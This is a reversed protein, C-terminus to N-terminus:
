REVPWRGLRCKGWWPLGPKDNDFLACDDLRCKEFKNVPCSRRRFTKRRMQDAWRVGFVRFENIDGDCTFEKIHDSIFEEISSYEERYSNDAAM